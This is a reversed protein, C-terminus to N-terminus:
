NKNCENEVRRLYLDEDIEYTNFRYGCEKCRRRRKLTEDKALYRSDWVLTKGGCVPCTM